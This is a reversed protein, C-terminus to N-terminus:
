RRVSGIEVTHLTPLPFVLRGGWDAVYRLQDTLEAELNWPLVLVV